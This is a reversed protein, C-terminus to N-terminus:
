VDCRVLLFRIYGLEKNYPADVFCFSSHRNTTVYTQGGKWGETRVSCRSTWRVTNQNTEFIPNKVLIQRGMGMIPGYM